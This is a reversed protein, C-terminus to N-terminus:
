VADFKDGVRELTLDMADFGGEEDRVFQIQRIRYSHGDSLRCVDTTLIEVDPQPKHMRILKDVRTNNQRATFFRSYGIVKEAYYGRLYMKTKTEAMNGGKEEIYRHLEAVGSDLIM